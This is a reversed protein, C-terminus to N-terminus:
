NPTQGRNTYVGNCTGVYLPTGIKDSFPLEAVMCLPEAPITGIKYWKSFNLYYIGSKVAICLVNFDAATGKVTCLDQLAENNPTKAYLTPEAGMQYISSDTSGIYLYHIGKNNIGETIAKVNLSMLDTMETSNTQWLLKTPASNLSDDYGGAFLRDRWYHLAACKPGISGFCNKPTIMADMKGFVTDNVRISRMISNEAGVYMTDKDSALCQPNMMYHVLDLKYFPFGKIKPNGIYIGDSWSENNGMAVLIHNPNIKIVDFIQLDKITVIQYWKKSQDIPRIYLGADTAAILANYKKDIIIRHVRQNELGLSMWQVQSLGTSVYMFIAIFISVIFSQNKNM